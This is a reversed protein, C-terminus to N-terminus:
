QRGVVCGYISQLSALVKMRRSMRRVYPYMVQRGGFGRVFHEVNRMMSGEFDFSRAVASAFKIAEWMLLSTAGSSRVEPDSGGMLYYAARDDWVIYVAAHARGAVERAFLIRRAGRGACAADLRQALARDYPVKLGQRLFTQVNLDWFQEFNDEASVGLKKEARRIDSRTKDRVGNWLQDLDRLDEMVYTYRPTQEFGEWHFPLLGETSFHFAQSFLDCAPLAAILRQMIDMRRSLRATYKGELPAVWPGLTQCLPPQGVVKLGLRRKVTYPWRGVLTKGDRVEIASWDKPAVADLWWEEQFLCDTARVSEGRAGGALERAHADEGTAHLHVMVARTAGAQGAATDVRRQM